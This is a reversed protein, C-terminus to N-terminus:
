RMCLRSARDASLGIFIFSLYYILSKHRLLTGMNGEALALICGMTFFIFLIPFTKRIGMKFSLAIGHIVFPMLIWWIMTEINAFIQSLLYPKLLFPLLLVSGFGIPLYFFTRGYTYTLLDTLFSTKSMHVSRRLQSLNYPLTQIEYYLNSIASRKYLVVFLLGWLIFALTAKKYRWDIFFLMYLVATGALVTAFFARLYYLAILCLILYALHRLTMKEEMKAMIALIMFIVFLTLPDKFNFLSWFFTSPWFLFLGITFIIFKHRMGFSKCLFYVPLIIFSHLFCNIVLLIQGARPGFLYFIAANYIQYANARVGVGTLNYYALEKEDPFYWNRWMAGVITGFDGYVYDDGKYSFGYYKTDVTNNYLCISIAVQALFTVLFIGTLAARMEKETKKLIFYVGAGTLLVIFLIQPMRDLALLSFLLASVILFITKGAKYKRQM